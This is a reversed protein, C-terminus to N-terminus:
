LNVKMLADVHFSRFGGGTPDVFTVIRMPEKHESNEEDDADTQGYFVHEVKVQRLSVVAKEKGQKTKNWWEIEKGMLANVLESDSMEDPNWPLRSKPKGNAAPAKDPDWLSYDQSIPKGNQWVIRLLEDGRRAIVEAFGTEVFDGMENTVGDEGFWARGRCEWGLPTLLDRTAKALVVSPNHRVVVPAAEASRQARKPAKASMQVTRGKAPNNERSSAAKAVKAPRRGGSAKPISDQPKFGGRSKVAMDCSPYTKGSSQIGCRVPRRGRQVPIRFMGGHDRCQIQTYKM